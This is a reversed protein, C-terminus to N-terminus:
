RTHDSHKNLHYIRAIGHPLRLGRDHMLMEENVVWLTADGEKAILRGREPGPNRSPQLMYAPSDGPAHFG